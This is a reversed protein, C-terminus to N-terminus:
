SATLAVTGWNVTVLVATSVSADTGFALAPSAMSHITVALFVPVDSRSLEAKVSLKAVVM